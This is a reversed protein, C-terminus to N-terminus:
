MNQPLPQSSYTITTHVTCSYERECKPCQIETDEVHDTFCEWGDRYEHGCHPCTPFERHEADHLTQFGEIPTM